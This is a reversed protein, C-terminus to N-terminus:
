WRGEVLGNDLGCGLRSQWRRWMVIRKIAIRKANGALHSADSDTPLPSSVEDHAPFLDQLKKM